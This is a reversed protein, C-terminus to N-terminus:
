PCLVAVGALAQVWVVLDQTWRVFRLAVTDGTLMGFSWTQYQSPATTQYFIAFTANSVTKSVSVHKPPMM